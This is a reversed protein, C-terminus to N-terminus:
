ATAELLDLTTKWERRGLALLTASDTDLLHFRKLYFEYVGKGAAFDGTSRPLVDSKLFEVYANVADKARKVVGELEGADSGKLAPKMLAAFEDLADASGSVDDIAMESWVMPPKDLRKRIEAFNDPVQRLRSLAQTARKELPAFDKILQTEIAYIAGLPIGPMIKREDRRKFDYRETELQAKWLAADLREDVSLKAPDLMKLDNLRASILEDLSNRTEDNWITLKDDHDHLGQDTAWTPDLAAREALYKEYLPAVAPAPKPDQAGVCLALFALARRV